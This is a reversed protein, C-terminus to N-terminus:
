LTGVPVISIVEEQEIPTALGHMERISRAGLFVAVSPQLEGDPSLLCARIAPYEHGLADIAEGVNDGSVTIEHHGGAVNRLASPIHISVVPTDFM